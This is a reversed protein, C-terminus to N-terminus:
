RTKKNKKFFIQLMESIDGKIKSPTKRVLQDHYGDNSSISYVLLAEPKASVIYIEMIESMNLYKNIETRQEKMYHKEVPSAENKFHVTIRM